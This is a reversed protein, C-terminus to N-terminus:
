IRRVSGRFRTPVPKRGVGYLSAFNARGTSNRFQRNVIGKWYKDLLMSFATGYSASLYKTVKAAPSLRSLSKETRAVVDNTRRVSLFRPSFPYATLLAGHCACVRSYVNKREGYYACVIEGTGRACLTLNM